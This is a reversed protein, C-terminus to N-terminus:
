IIEVVSLCFVFFLYFLLIYSFSQITWMMGLVISTSYRITFSKEYSSFCLAFLMVFAPEFLLPQFLVLAFWSLCRVSHRRSLPSIKHWWIHPLIVIKSMLYWPIFSWRNCCLCCSNTANETASRYNQDQKTRWCVRECIQSFLSHGQLIVSLIDLVFLIGSYFM